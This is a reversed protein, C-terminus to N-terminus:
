INRNITLPLPNITNDNVTKINNDVTFWLIM